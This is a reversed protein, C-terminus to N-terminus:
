LVLEPTIVKTLAVFAATGAVGLVITPVIADVTVGGNIATVFILWSCVVVLGWVAHWVISHLRPRKDRRRKTAIWSGVLVGVFPGIFTVLLDDIRDSRDLWALQSVGLVIVLVVGTVAGTITKSLSIPEATGTM